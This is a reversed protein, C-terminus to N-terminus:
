QSEQKLEQDYMKQLCAAKQANEVLQNVIGVIALPDGKELPNLGGAWYTARQTLYWPSHRDGTTLFVGPGWYGKAEKENLLIQHGVSLSVRWVYETETEQITHTFDKKM